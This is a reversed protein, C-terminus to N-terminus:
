ENETPLYEEIWGLDLESLKGKGPIGRDNWGMMEYYLSRAKNFEDKDLKQGKRPGSQIPQFMRDPLIDDEFTFGERLNFVRFMNLRKEGLKMLEWLSTELGTIARIAEVLHRIKMYRVPALAFICGCIVELSSWFLQLNYLMRVKKDSLSEAPLREYIGVPGAEDIFKQPASFNFDSDHEIVAFDPGIPSVAYGLGLSAKARPDHMALEKKKSQIAFKEAEKGFVKAARYSGDALIDGIGSRQAILEIVKLLVEKNGFNLKLGNTDKESIIGREFCEMAFSVTAGLSTPDLSYSNCLEYAKLIVPTDTIGCNPGLAVAGDFEPSGYIGELEVGNKKVPKIIQKCNTPCFFCGQNKQIFKRYGETGPMDEWKEVVGTLFNRTVLQGDEQVMAVAGASGYDYQMKPVSDEIFHKRYDDSIKELTDADSIRIKGEGTVAIAKLKKSGMVAGLGMRFNPYILDNVISAYRTLNEGAPGILAIRVGPSTEKKIIRYAEGTTKGWIHSADRIQVKGNNIWIYVPHDAKGKVILADFGAKKLEVGWFGEAQSEGIGETLPSKAMVSHRALGPVPAGTLISTAFILLNDPGFVDTKPPLEKLLYYAGLCGGGWYTRYFLEDPKEIWIKGSSLDVRLIKGTYGHFM